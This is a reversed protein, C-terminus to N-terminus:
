ISSLLSTLSSSSSGGSTGGALISQINAVANNPDNSMLSLALNYNALQATTASSAAATTNGPTAAAPPPANSKQYTSQINSLVSLLQSRALDAGTKTSIDLTGSFGLGYTPAVNANMALFRASMAFTAQSGANSVQAM